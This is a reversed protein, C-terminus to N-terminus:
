YGFLFYGIIFFAEVDNLPNEEFIVMDGYKGKKMSVLKREMNSLTAM